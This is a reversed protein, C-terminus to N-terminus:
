FSAVDRVDVIAALDIPGYCHPYLAHPDDQKPTASPLPAPAEYVLHSTLRAPDIVLVIVERVGAFYARATPGVQHAQSCHIFGETDLSPARYAGAAQAADLAPRTTLHYVM